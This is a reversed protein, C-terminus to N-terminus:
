TTRMVGVRSPATVTDRHAPDPPALRPVSRQVSGTAEVAGRRSRGPVEGGRRVPGEARHKGARQELQRLVLAAGADDVDAATGTVRQREELTM